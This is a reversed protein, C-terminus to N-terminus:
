RAVAAPAHHEVLVASIEACCAVMPARFEELHQPTLRTSPGSVTLVAVVRGDPGRVTTAAAVVGDEREGHSVAWHEERMRALEEEAPLHTESSRALEALVARRGAPPAFALLLRGSSGHGLPGPRGLAVFPRLSYRSEVAAICVRRGNDVVYLHVSEGLRDRLRRMPPEAYARLDFGGAAAAGWSLLRAGLAYGDATRRVIGLSTLEALLRHASSKPLGVAAAVEGLRLPAESAGLTDLTQTAKELVSM